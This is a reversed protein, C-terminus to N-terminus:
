CVTTSCCWRGSHLFSCPVTAKDWMWTTSRCNAMRKRLRMCPCCCSYFYFIVLRRMRSGGVDATNIDRLGRAWWDFEHRLLALTM